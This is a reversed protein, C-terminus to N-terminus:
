RRGRPASRAGGPASRSAAPGRSGARRHRCSRALWASIARRRPAGAASTARSPSSSSGGTARAPTRRRVQRAVRAEEEEFAARREAGRAVARGLQVLGAPKGAQASLTCFAPWPASTAIRGPSTATSRLAPARGRSSIVVRVEDLHRGNGSRPACRRERAVAPGLRMACRREMGRFVDIRRGSMMEEVMRRGLPFRAHRWVVHAVVECLFRHWPHSVSITLLAPAWAGAAQAVVMAANAPRIWGRAIM